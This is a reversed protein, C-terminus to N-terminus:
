SKSAVLLIGGPLRRVADLAAGFRWEADSPFEQLSEIRLGAQALATIVDGLPWAFEAKTEIANEGGTFHSWGGGWEPANRGFYDSVIDLRGEHMGLCQALPHEEHLIFRGGLHLAAAVIQAWRGIDPLWCLVGGGTYVLDFTAQQLETPLDYVDAAVFRVALRAAAAQQAALEIQRDSIDVGTAQAGAVAWSLTEEGTACQLHLVTQGHMDGAAALVSSALLSGGEAYFAADPWGKNQFRVAAIENWARRNQQTYTQINTM